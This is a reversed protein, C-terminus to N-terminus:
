WRIIVMQIKMAGIKNGHEVGQILGEPVCLVDDRIEYAEKFIRKLKKTKNFDLDGKMVSCGKYGEWNTGTKNEGM